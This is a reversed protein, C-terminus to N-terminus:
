DREFLNSCIIEITFLLIFDIILGFWTFGITVGKFINIIINFYDSAVILICIAMVILKILNGVNLKKKM